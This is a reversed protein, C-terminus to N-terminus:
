PLLVALGPAIGGGEEPPDLPNENRELPVVVVVPVIGGGRVRSSRASEGEKGTAGRGGGCKLM